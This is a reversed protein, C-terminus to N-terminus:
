ANEMIKKGWMVDAERLHHYPVPKRAPVNEKVYVGDLVESQKQQAFAGFSILGVTMLVFVKKM